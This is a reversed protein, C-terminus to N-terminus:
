LVDGEPKVLKKKHKDYLRKFILGFIGLFVFPASIYGIFMLTGEFSKSFASGIRSLFNDASAAALGAESVNVNITSFSSLSELKDARAEYIAIQTRTDSLRRQLQIIESTETAKGILDNLREEEARLTTVRSKTDFYEDTVEDIHESSSLLSGAGEVATKADAYKDKPVRITANYTSHSKEEYDKYTRFDSNEFYGGYTSVANRITKITSDFDKTSLSVQAQKILMQEKPADPSQPYYEGIAPPTEAYSDYASAGGAGSNSKSEMQPAASTAGSPLPPKACSTLFILLFLLVAKNKM